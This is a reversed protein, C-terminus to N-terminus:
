ILFNRKCYWKRGLINVLCKMIKKNNLYKLIEKDMRILRIFNWVKEIKINSKIIKQLRM